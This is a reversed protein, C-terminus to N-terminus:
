DRFLKLIYRDGCESWNMSHQFEPRENILGLKILLKMLRGNHYEERLHLQLGDCTDMSLDYENM